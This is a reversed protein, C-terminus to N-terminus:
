QRVDTHLHLLPQIRKRVVRDGLEADVLTVAEFQRDGDSRLRVYAEVTAAGRERRESVAAGPLAGALSEGVALEVRRIRALRVVPWLVPIVKSDGAVLVDDDLIESDFAALVLGAVVGRVRELVADLERAVVVAHQEVVDGDVVDPAVEDVDRSM